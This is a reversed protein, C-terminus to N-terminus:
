ENKTFRAEFLNCCEKTELLLCSILLLVDNHALGSRAQKKKVQGLAHLPRMNLPCSRCFCVFLLECVNERCSSLSRLIKVNM